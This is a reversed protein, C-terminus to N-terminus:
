EAKDSPPKEKELAEQAKKAAKSAAERKQQHLRAEVDMAMQSADAMDFNKSRTVDFYNDDIPIKEGFDYNEQRYRLLTEGAQIISEIRSKASVYGATETMSPEFNKERPTSKHNYHTQFDM